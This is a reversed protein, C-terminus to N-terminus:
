REPWMPVEPVGREWVPSRRWSVIWRRRLTFTSGHGSVTVRDGTSTNPFGSRPLEGLAAIVTPRISFSWSKNHRQRQRRAPAFGPGPLPCNKGNPRRLKVCPRSCLWSGLFDNVNQGFATTTTILVPSLLCIFLRKLMGRGERWFIAEDVFHGENQRPLCHKCHYGVCNATEQQALPVQLRTEADHILQQCICCV